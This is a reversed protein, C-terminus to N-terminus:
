AVVAPFVIQALRMLRNSWNDLFGEQTHDKIITRVYRVMRQAMFRRLTNPGAKFAANKTKDGMVGDADLNLAIQLTRIAGGVGQNVACDFMAIALPSPLEDCHCPSWYRDKYLQVASEKTLDPVNVDPNAASSIGFKTYGGKDNAVLEGTAGGEEKLVFEIARDWDTNM